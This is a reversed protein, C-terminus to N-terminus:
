RDGAHARLDDYVRERFANALTRHLEDLTRRRAPLVVYAQWGQWATYCVFLGYAVGTTIGAALLFADAARALGKM